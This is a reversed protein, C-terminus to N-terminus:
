LKLSRWSREVFMNDRWRSTGGMGVQIGQDKLLGAFEDSMFRYGQDTNFIEHLTIAEQVAELWCGTTLTNSMRWMMVRRSALDM